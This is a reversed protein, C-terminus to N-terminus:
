GPAGVLSEPGRGERLWAYGYPKLHIRQHGDEAVPDERNRLVDYLGAVKRGLTVTVDVDRGSLNHVAFISSREGRCCHALVAPDSTELWECEANGFEPSRLRLRTMHEMWNLLSAPDRQQDAVNVREYGFDGGHVVPLVLRDAPATSFGANRANAWQMPTRIAEREKLSLDEGMGIEDGCRLVPTGPLTLVLSHALELRARDNGLMPAARRRIGRNYLQMSPEPGFARFVEARETDTLRGLDLEDHTRLFNAWQCYKPIRPLAAYADRIPQAQGRALALWLHQNVFFNFIVHVRDGEGFYMPVQDPPLNAEAMFVADGRGWSLVQRMDVLYEPCDGFATSGPGKTSIVFPLADVRFGSVGLQVWTKIIRAIEARVAPNGTNLDPQHDYFRHYYYEGAVEDFTWTTKQVGPFVMGQEANPPKEKSWVYWDRYKSKPDRRAAQFWPHDISTHNVVLDTIIRIGRDRAAQSFEVFDGLTGYRPDVSYYDSIDYGADRGPSPFFPQLWLCTVNLGSLYDLKAALGPFDGSGDGNGDAFSALDITYVIANKHWLADM